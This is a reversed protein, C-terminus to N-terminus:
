FLPCARQYVFSCMIAPLACLPSPLVFVSSPLARVALVPRALQVPPVCPLYLAHMPTPLNRLGLFPRASTYSPHAHRFPPTCPLSPARMPNRSPVCMGISAIHVFVM